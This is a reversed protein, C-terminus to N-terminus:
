NSEGDSIINKQLGPAPASTAAPGGIAKNGYDLGITRKEGANAFTAENRGINILLWGDSSEGTKLTKTEGDNTKVIAVAKGRKKSVLGVLTPIPTIQEATQIEEPEEAIMEDAFALPARQANFIPKTLLMDVARINQIQVKTILLPQPESIDDPERTLLWWPVIIMLAAILGLWVWEIKIQAIM